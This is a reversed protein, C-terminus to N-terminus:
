ATLPSRVIGVCYETVHCVDTSILKILVSFKMEDLKFMEDRVIINASQSEISGYTAIPIGHAENFSLSYFGLIFM